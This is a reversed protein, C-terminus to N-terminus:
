HNDKDHAKSKQKQKVKEILSSFHELKDENKSSKNETEELLVRELLTAIKELRKDQVYEAIFYILLLMMIPAILAVLVIVSLPVLIQSYSSQFELVLKGQSTKVRQVPTYLDFHKLVYSLAPRLKPDKIYRYLVNNDTDTVTLYEFDVSARLQKTLVKANENLNSHLLQTILAKQQLQKSQILKSAILLASSAFALGMFLSFVIVFIFFKSKKFM